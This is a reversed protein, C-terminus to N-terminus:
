YPTFNLLRLDDAYVDDLLRRTEATLNAESITPCRETSTYVPEDTLQVPYGHSAMLADFSRPLDDTVLLETCWQRGTKDWIYDVQPIHHCDDIFKNGQKYHNLTTMVFHNLGEASCPERDYLGNHYSKYYKHGWSHTGGQLHDDLLYTYESVARRYPHRIACFRTAQQYPNHGKLLGPPVHYRNCTSGDEMRQKGLLGLNKASWFIGNAKGAAEMSTGANKPIHILELHGAQLSNEVVAIFVVFAICVALTAIGM